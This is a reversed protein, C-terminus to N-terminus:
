GDSSSKLIFEELHSHHRALDFVNGFPDLPKGFVSSAERDGPVNKAAFVIFWEEDDVVVSFVEFSKAQIEAWDTTFDQSFPLPEGSARLTGETVMAAVEVEGCM